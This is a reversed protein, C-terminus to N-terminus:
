TRRPGPSPSRPTMVGSYPATNTLDAWTTGNSSVQWTLAPPPFGAVEAAFSVTGGVDTSKNSPQATFAPASAEAIERIRHNQGDCVYLEGAETVTVKYPSRFEASAAPGGDGSYGYTGLGAVTDITGTAATIKRIRNNGSDAIWLNGHADIDLGTPTNLESLGAPGGDGSSGYNGNGAITTIIGTAGSIVRIRNQTYAALYLNGNEAFVLSSVYGVIAETAPYGDGVDRWAVGAGGAITTIVGAASVKRVASNDSDSFYLNGAGDFTLASPARIAAATAPGGDGSYGAAGSGAVTSM